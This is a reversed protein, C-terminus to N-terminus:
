RRTSRRRWRASHRPHHLLNVQMCGVDASQVGRAQLAEVAAIAAAKSPYYTGVGEANM